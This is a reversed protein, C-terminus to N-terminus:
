TDINENKMNIQLHKKSKCHNSKNGLLLTLDCDVCKWNKKAYINQQEKYAKIREDNSKYKQPRAM